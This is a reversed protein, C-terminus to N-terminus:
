VGMKKLSEDEAKRAKMHAEVLDIDYYDAIRILMAFVDALEDGIIEKTTLYNPLSGREPFYYHEAVMIHKALEGTQKVLEIMAGEVAWPRGEITEFRRYVSRFLDIADRFTIDSM